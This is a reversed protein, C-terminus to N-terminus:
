SAPGGERNQRRLLVYLYMGGVVATVIGVPLEQPALAARALLDAWSLLVAGM